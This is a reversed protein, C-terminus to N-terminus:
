YDKVWVIRVSMGANLSAYKNVLVYSGNTQETWDTIGYGSDARNRPYASVLVYGSKKPLTASGNSFTVPLTEIMYMRETPENLKQLIKYLLKKVGLVGNTVVESLWGLSTLAQTLNHDDGSTASTDLNVKPTTIDVWKDTITKAVAIIAPKLVAATLVRKVTNVGSTIQSQTMAPYIDTAPVKSTESGDDLALYTSDDPTGDYTNLEHIKM